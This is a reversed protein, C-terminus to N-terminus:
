YREINRDLRGGHGGLMSIILHHLKLRPAYDLHYTPETGLILDELTDEWRILRGDEDGNRIDGGGGGGTGCGSGSYEDGGLGIRGTEVVYQGGTVGSAEGGGSM